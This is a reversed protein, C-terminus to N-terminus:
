PNRKPLANLVSACEFRGVPRYLPARPHAAWPPDLPSWLTTLDVRDPARGGRRLGGCLRRAELTRYFTGSGEYALNFALDYSRPRTWHPFPDQGPGPVV